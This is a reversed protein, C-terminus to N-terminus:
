LSEVPGALSVSGASGVAVAEVVVFFVVGRGALPAVRVAVLAAFVAAALGAAAAVVGLSAVDVLVAADAAAATVASYM